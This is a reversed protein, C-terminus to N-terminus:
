KLKDICASAAKEAAEIDGLDSGNVDDKHATMDKIFQRYKADATARDASKCVDEVMAKAKGPWESKGCSGATLVLAVVLVIHKM